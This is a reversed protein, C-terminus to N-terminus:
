CLNPLLNPPHLLRGKLYKIFAYSLIHYWRQLHSFQETTQRLTKFFTHIRILAKQVLPAKAHHHSIAITIQRAHQTQRGVANLLLPRSTIAETHKKPDALRVFLSWWNYILAIMRAMVKCRKLDQTTFGCWGWQNKLEDFANESDARDRYHQAMTLVEDPLSTVLVAYEYVQMTQDIEAFCFEEQGKEKECVVGIDQKIKRRLIIVRRSCSWGQLQLHSEQGEWGQGAYDWELEGALRQILRKVNKTCKLKFLYPLNKKEAQKMIADSGFSCDGRIFAPWSDRPLGELFNWLEPATHKSTHQNGPQVEVSLILRLPSMMYSHYAHSPRGRKHPNYSIVAGEQNGYIVKVTMDVDLIWPERLLPEYCYNLNDQLWDLSGTEELKILARRVADESVVRKMGLLPPNLHDGQLRSIHAYRTHGSLISLLLTGLIDRKPPANPSTMHLPCTKEWRDFLNGQKLFEIFFPLQGITTVPAQPEWEVYVQGAFTEVTVKANEAPLNSQKSTFKCEGLPHIKEHPLKM